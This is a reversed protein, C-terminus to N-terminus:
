KNNIIYIINNSNLCEFQKSTIGETGGCSLLSATIKYIHDKSLRTFTFMNYDHIKIFEVEEDYVSHQFPKSPTYHTINLQFM